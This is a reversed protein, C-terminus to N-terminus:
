DHSNSRAQDNILKRIFTELLCLSHTIISRVEQKFRENLLDNELHKSFDRLLPHDLSHKKHLGKELMHHRANNSYNVDRDSCHPIPSKNYYHM